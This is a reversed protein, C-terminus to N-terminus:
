FSFLVLLYGSYVNENNSRMFMMDIFMAWILFEAVEKGGIITRMIHYWIAKDYNHFLLLILRKSTDLEKHGWPSCGM